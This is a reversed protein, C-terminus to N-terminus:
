KEPLDAAVHDSFSSAIRTIDKFGGAALLKMLEDKTDSSKVFNVLCAAIIHPLHSITRTITDHLRYDLIIPLAKLSAVFTRYDELKQSSVKDSPTM